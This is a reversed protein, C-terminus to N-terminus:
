KEGEQLAAKMTVGEAEEWEKLRAELERVRRALQANAGGVVKVQDDLSEVRQESAILDVQQKEITGKHWDVALTRDKVDAKLKEVEAKLSEVEKPLECHECAPEIM